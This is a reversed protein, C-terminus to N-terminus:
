SVNCYSVSIKFTTPVCLTVPSFGDSSPDMEAITKEAKSGASMFSLLTILVEDNLHM